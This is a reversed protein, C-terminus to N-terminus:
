LCDLIERWIREIMSSMNGRVVMGNVADTNFWQLFPPFRRDGRGYHGIFLYKGGFELMERRIISEGAM